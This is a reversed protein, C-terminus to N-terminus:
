PPCAPATDQCEPSWLVSGSTTPPVPDWVTYRADITGGAKIAVAAATGRVCGFANPVSVACSMGPNLAWAGSSHFALGDANTGGDNAYIRNGQLVFSTLLLQSAQRFLIGGARRQDAAPGYLEPSTTANSHVECSTMAFSSANPIEVVMGTGGNRAVLLGDLTADVVTAGGLHVGKGANDTVETITAGDKQFILVGGSAVVGVGSGHFRSGSATMSATTTGFGVSLAANAAGSVDVRELVAACDGEVRVGTALQQTGSAVTVDRLTSGATAGCVLRVGTADPMSVNVIRVREVIGGELRVIDTASMAGDGDITTEGPASAGVITLGEPVVIPFSEGTAIGFSVAEGPAGHARVTVAGGHTVAADLADGLQRFRCVRPSDIGTPYPVAGSPSGLPDATFEATGNAPCECAHPSAGRQACLLGEASCSRSDWRGCTADADTCTQLDDGTCKTAGVDCRTALCAAARESCRGDNGCAQGAPCDTVTGPAACRAGEVEVQCAALALAALMVLARRM